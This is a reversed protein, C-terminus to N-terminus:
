ARCSRATSTRGCRSGGPTTSPPTRARADDALREVVPEEEVRPARGDGRRPGGGDGRPPLDLLRAVRRRGRHAVPVPRARVRREDARLRRPQAVAHARRGRDQRRAADARRRRPPLHPVAAHVHPRRAVAGHLRRRGRLRADLPRADRLPPRAHAAQAGLDAGRVAAEVQARGRVDARDARRPAGDGRDRERRGLPRALRARRAAGLARPPRRHAAAGPRLLPRGPDQPHAAPVRAPLARLRVHERPLPPLRPVQHPLHPGDGHVDHLRHAPSLMLLVIEAWGESCLSDKPCVTATGNITALVGDTWFIQSPTWFEARPPM